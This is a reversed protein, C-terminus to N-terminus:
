FYRELTIQFHDDDSISSFKHSSFLRMDFSLKWDDGLRRSAEIQVSYLDNDDLDHIWAALFETNQVDNFALRGGIMIDDQFQTIIPTGREDWSYEMIMGWDIASDFVSYFTYEFGGSVAAFDDIQEHRQIAELKWLWSELTLQIDLGVQDIQDYYPMLQLTGDGKLEPIFRPDRNTGKFYYLGIDYDGISHSWRVAFDVHKDQASSEYRAHHNAFPIPSRLRGKEGPFTRERFGPLIFLDITGWDKLLTLNIMPQGLKEQSRIDDVLDDQNIIDVLHNFETVGWFVKTIGTRLEWDDQTHLWLLERIDFHSRENDYQDIRFYPKFLVSDQDDNWTQYFEIEGMLSWQNQHSHQQEYISDHTFILDTVGVKGNIDLAQSLVPILLGAFTNLIIVLLAYLRM